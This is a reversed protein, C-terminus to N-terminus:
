DFHGSSPRCPFGLVDAAECDPIPPSNGLCHPNTNAKDTPNPFHCGPDEGPIQRPGGPQGQQAQAQQQEFTPIVALGGILVVATAVLFIAIAGNQNYNKM